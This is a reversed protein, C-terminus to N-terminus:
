HRIAAITMGTVADYTISAAGTTADTYSVGDVLIHREAGAPVTVALNAVSLGPVAAKKSAITVTHSSSDGNKVVLATRGDAVFTDGGSACAVYSPNLGAPVAQQTALAAM